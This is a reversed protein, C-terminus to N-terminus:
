CYKANHSFLNIMLYDDKSYIQVSSKMNNPINKQIFFPVQRYLLYFCVIKIVYILIQRPQVGALSCPKIRGRSFDKTIDAFIHRARLHYKLSTTSQHLSLKNNFYPWMVNAKDLSGDLLKKFHFKSNLVGPSTEETMTNDANAM